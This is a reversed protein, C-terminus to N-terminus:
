PLELGSTRTEGGAPLSDPTQVFIMRLQHLTEGVYTAEDESLNGATKIEIVAITDIFHRALPKRIVPRNEVPDPIHGLNALAQTALTTVLVPISAPPMGHMEDDPSAVREQEMKQLAEKEKQVNSKWDDDVIIRPEEGPQNM